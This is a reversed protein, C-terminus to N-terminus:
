NFLDLPLHGYTGNIGDDFDSQCSVLVGRFVGTYPEWFCRGNSSNFKIYVPGTVQEPDMAGLSDPSPVALGLSQLYIQLGSWGASLTEACVGFIQRDSASVVQRLAMQLESVAALAPLSQSELCSYQELLTQAATLTLTMLLLTM